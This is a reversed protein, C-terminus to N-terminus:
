RRNSIPIVSAYVATVSSITVQVEGPPLDVAVYLAAAATSLTVTAATIAVYTTGDPGLISIGVTGTSSASVITVGYKGGLLAFPGQTASANSVLFGNGNYDKNAM